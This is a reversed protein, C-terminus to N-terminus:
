GTFIISGFGMRDIEGTFNNSAYVYPSQWPTREALPDPSTFRGITAYYHRFGFDYMDYGHMPVYKTDFLRGIYM